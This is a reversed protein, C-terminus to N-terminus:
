LVSGNSSAAPGRTSHFKLLVVGLVEELSDGAGEEVEEGLVDAQNGRRGPRPRPFRARLPRHLPDVVHRSKYRYIHTSIINLLHTGDM